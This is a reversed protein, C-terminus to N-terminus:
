KDQSDRNIVCPPEPEPEPPIFSKVARHQMKDAAEMEMEVQIKRQEETNNTGCQRM